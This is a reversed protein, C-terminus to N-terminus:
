ALVSDASGSRVSEVASSFKELTEPRVNFAPTLTIGSSDPGSPVVIVGAALLKKALTLGGDAVGSDITWLFGKGRVTQGLAKGASTVADGVLNHAQSWDTDEYSSFTAIIAAATFPHGLFTATHIAEGTTAGWAADVISQKAVVAGAPMGGGLSKGLCVIDPAVETGLVTSTRGCGVLVADVILAAGVRDCEKRLGGMFEAPPIIVGARGQIPEVIVAAVSDDLTPVMGYPHFTVAGSAFQDAFPDRFADRHTVSLALGFTGHYAGEFAVIKTRKTALLATKLATEVAESGSHLILASLESANSIGDWCTASRECLMRAANRRLVNSHLDGLGHPLENLNNNYDIEPLVFGHGYPVSGFGMALDVYENGETDVVTDGNAREWVPAGAQAFGAFEFNHSM